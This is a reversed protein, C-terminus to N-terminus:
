FGFDTVENLEVTDKPPQEAMIQEDVGQIHIAPPDIPCISECGGCGICYAETVEPITLGDEFPVMHVAQTPCHEACAGCDVHSEYVKCREKDFVAVGVRTLKKEELTLPLLADAPCVDVCVKCEFNCFKEVEFRMYPQMMGTLGNELFAPKLVNTPCKDVCLQCATCKSLIRERSVAGPPMPLIRAPTGGAVEQGFLKATPLVTATLLAGKLFQRRSADYDATNEAIPAVSDKVEASSSTSTEIQESKAESKRLSWGTPRYKIADQRCRDLCDYCTVCRSVDVTGNKFDICNSKCASACLGCKTCATKDIHVRFLSVRSLLGLLTGVPCIANCWLRGARWAMVILIVLVVAAMLVVITTMDLQPINYLSYNGAANMWGALLNNGAVVVPRFLAVAIRGFNSYPDLLLLPYIVGIAFLGAVVSLIGYRVINWPERYRAKLLKRKKVIRLYWKKFRFIVDQLIGLPCIVSCYVRGLLLTLLGMVVLVVASGAIIAPVIQIEALGTFWSPALRMIDLFLLLCSGGVLVALLRRLYKLFKPM